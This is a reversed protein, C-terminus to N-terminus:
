PDPRSPTSAQDSWLGLKKELKEKVFHTSEEREYGAFDVLKTTSADQHRAMLIYHLKRNKHGVVKTDVELWQLDAASLRITKSFPFPRVQRILETENAVLCISNVLSRIGLLLVLTLVPGFIYVFSLDDESLPANIIAHLGIPLGFALALGTAVIGGARNVKCRITLKDGAEDVWVGRYPNATAM